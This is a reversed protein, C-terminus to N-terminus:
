RSRGAFGRIKHSILLFAAMGASRRLRPHSRRLAARSREGRGWKSVVGSAVNLHAAFVAQSIAARVNQYVVVMKM